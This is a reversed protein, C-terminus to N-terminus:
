FDYKVTFTANRPAGYALQSYFGIQSYYEKDLLNNINLQASLQENFQYRGMVNVLAYGPQEVTEANGTAPNTTETYNRGEWNVGGGVTTQNWRYTTFLSFLENPFRTNVANSSGDSEEQTAEFRTYGTSVEWQESLNGVLEFEYGDTVVGEAAKYATLRDSGEAPVYESDEVAVNDQVTHFLIATAHLNDDFFRSKLGIEYNKGEVPDLYNGEADQNSQSEFIETYSAYLTHGEVIDYLIGFYPVVVDKDGYNLETGYQTGERDWDSIRAGAVVKFPDSINLRTAAYYGLQTTIQDNFKSRNSWDPEPYSGDWEFFNGVPAAETSQYRYYEFDQLSRSVGFVLDHERNFLYYWGNIRAGIDYQTRRNDFRALSAGLGEGTVPDPQGYLYILKMDSASETKNANLKLEWGNTFIHSLNAFLTTHETAWYTWDAGVTDSRDWDTRSGDSFYIPLGGWQSATPNNDQYSAGISFRTNDTIDTDVVAYFVSKENEAYDVFSEGNEYKTVFRGRISGSNNLASGVDATASYTNWSGASGSVYGSLEKSDAHKRVLNISASPEGAGTLLGTAGRVIEVREYLATDTQTEGASSGGEWTVPIGDIQYNSVNFGRASFSNRSSDLAKSSIGAANNVVDTLSGLNQDQIQEKTMISVSQPTEMITLGLGTATNVRDNMVYDATVKVADLTVPDSNKEASHATASLASIAAALLTYKKTNSLLESQKSM